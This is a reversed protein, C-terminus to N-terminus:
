DSYKLGELFYKLFIDAVNNVNTQIGLQKFSTMALGAYGCPNILSFPMLDTNVNIAIGHYSCGKRIRIGLSAIKQPIGLVDVYVGPADPKPYASIGFEALTSVTSIELITVLPRVGIPHPNLPSPKLNLLPYLVLQGPGHYTVQGGRDTSIVPIDSYQLIHESKGALGQTFVPEHECIWVEDPTSEDRLDTFHNMANYTHTYEVCGLKKIIM